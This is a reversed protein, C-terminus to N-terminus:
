SQQWHRTLPGETGYIPDNDAVPVAAINSKLEEARGEGGRAMDYDTQGAPYAGMVRFDASSGENKHGTGAPDPNITQNM